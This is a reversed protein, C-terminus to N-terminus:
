KHQTTQMSVTRAEPRKKKKKSIVQLRHRYYLNVKVEKHVCISSSVTKRGAKKKDVSWM